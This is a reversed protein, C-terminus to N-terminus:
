VFFMTLSGVLALGVLFIQIRRRTEPKCDDFMWFKGHFQWHLAWKWRLLLGALWLALLAAAILLGIEPHAQAWEFFSEAKGNMAEWIDTINMAMIM